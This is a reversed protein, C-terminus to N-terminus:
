PAARTVASDQCRWGRPLRTAGDCSASGVNALPLEVQELSAGALAAGDFSAGQVEAGFLSTHTLNAHSLDVGRLDAGALDMGSLNLSALSLGRFDRGMRVFEGIAADRSAESSRLHRQAAMRYTVQLPDAALVLAAAGLALVAQLAAGKSPSADEPPRALTTALAVGALLLFALVVRLGATSGGLCASAALAASVAALGCFGLARPPQWASRPETSRDAPASAQHHATSQNRDPTGPLVPVAGPVPAVDEDSLHELAATLATALEGASPYRAAPEPASGRRVIARLTANSEDGKLADDLIRAASYIDSRADVAEGRMVEPAAFSTYLAVEGGRDALAHVPVSGAEALVPDLADDLLVNAPCLCGHVIGAAHLAGLARVIRLVFEVRRRPSWRLASLDRASGTTWLDTLFAERSPAIARVRLVGPLADAAAHAAEAMRGFLEREPATIGDAVAVIAVEVGDKSARWTRALPRDRALGLLECGLAIADCVERRDEPPEVREPALAHVLQPGMDASSVFVNKKALHSGEGKGSCDALTWDGRRPRKKRVLPVSLDPFSSAFGPSLRLERWLKAVIPSCSPM